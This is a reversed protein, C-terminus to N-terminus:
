YFRKPRSAFEEEEEEHDYDKSTKILGGMRFRLLAQTGSDVLDDTDGYPFSAFEEIVHENKTGPIFYVWGSSFLDSVANVRAIKDNGRSPTFAQVPIGMMRLESILPSGAAKAEVLIVDPKKEKFLQKAKTKLEPFEMRERFADILLAASVERGTEDRTKFIGWTTCACFDSRETKLFATDWSQLIFEFDPLEKEWPKWWERKVLAAEDSTPQQQYTSNWSSSPIEAKISLWYELPFRESALWKGSPFIAPFEIIEWQDSGPATIMRERIMGTLDLKGWRTQILIMRSTPLMRQRPGSIYWDYTKKFVDPKYAVLKGDKESHPDDVVLLDANRGVMAGGVGVAYYEGGVNTRWHGAAKADAKLSVNPFVKNFRESAVLDRVKGGWETSFSATHTAQIISKKPYRGLFYAPLHLSSLVSKGVRPAINIIVRKLDGDIVRDFIEGIQRFYASDIYESSQTENWCFKTFDLFKSRASEVQRAASLMEALELIERQKHPPLAKIHALFREDSLDVM